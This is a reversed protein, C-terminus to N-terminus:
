SCRKQPVDVLLLKQNKLVAISCRHTAAETNVRKQLNLYNILLNHAILNNFICDFNILTENAFSQNM